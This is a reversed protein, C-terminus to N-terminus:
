AVGTDRARDAAEEISRHADAMGAFGSTGQIDRDGPPLVPGLDELTAVLRMQGQMRGPQRDNTGEEHTGGLIPVWCDLSRVVVVPM